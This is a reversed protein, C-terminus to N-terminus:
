MCVLCAVSLGIAFGYRLYFFAVRVLSYLIVITSDRHAMAGEGPDADSTPEAVPKGFGLMM